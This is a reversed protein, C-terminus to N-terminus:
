RRLYDETNLFARMAEPSANRYEDNEAAPAGRWASVRVPTVQYAPRGDLIHPCNAMAVIVDMEARLVLSRGPPYPGV